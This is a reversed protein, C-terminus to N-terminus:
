MDYNLYERLMDMYQNEFGKLTYFTGAGEGQVCIQKSQVMKEIHKKTQSLTFHDQLLKVIHRFKARQNNELYAIILASAEENEEDGSKLYEELNGAFEFYAKGLLYIRARTKHRAEVYHMKVLNSVIIKNLHKKDQRLRVQNLTFMDHASLEHPHDSSHQITKIYRAFASDEILASLSLSVQTDDSKSYDPASKGEVLTNRFIKNIGRGTREVIGCTAMIEVLFKNRPIRRGKILTDLSVSQPFGGSSIIEIQHPYQKILTESAIQYDRHAIANLLAERIVEENFSPICDHQPAGKYLPISANRSNITCWLQEIMLLFPGILKDRRNCHIRGERTRYELVITSQPLHKCLASKKGLLILAANRVRKGKLLNLATLAQEDSLDVFAPENHKKAYKIKLLHIANTDLDSISSGACSRKSFDFTKKQSTHPLQEDPM